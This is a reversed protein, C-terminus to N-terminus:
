EFLREIHPICVESDQLNMMAEEMEQIMEKTLHYKRNLHEYYDEIDQDHIERKRTLIAQMMDYSKDINVLNSEAETLKYGGIEGFLFNQKKIGEPMREASKKMLPYKEKLKQAWLTMRKYHARWIPLDKCWTEASLQMDQLFRVFQAITLTKAKVSYSDLKLARRFQRTMKYGNSSRFVQTSCFDTDELDGIKIFKAIQGLGHTIHKKAQEKTAFVEHLKEVILEIQSPECCTEGDDGKAIVEYNDKPIKALEEVVFRQYLAMRVTNGFTTDPDGSFTNGIIECIGITHRCGEEWYSGTLTSAQHNCMADWYVVPIHDIKDRIKRYIYSDIGQKLAAHQTNDFGSGDIQITATLGKQECKDLWKCLEPWNKGGCYGKLKKAAHQELAYIPPGKVYKIIGESASVCRTKPPDEGDYLQKEAKVIVNYNPPTTIWKQKQKMAKIIKEDTVSCDWIEGDDLKYLQKNFVTLYPKMEDQKEQNLHNMWTELSYQFNDLDMEDDIIKQAWKIFRELMKPDPIVTKITMRKMSTYMTNACNTYIIPKETGYYTPLIQIMGIKGHNESYCHNDEWKKSYRNNMNFGKKWTVKKEDEDMMGSKEMAKVLEASACSFPIVDFAIAAANKAAYKNQREVEEELWQAVYSIYKKAIQICAYIGLVLVSITTLPQEPQVAVVKNNPSAAVKAFLLFVIGLPKKIVKLLFYAYLLYTFTDIEGMSVQSSAGVLTVLRINTFPKIIKLLLAWIFSMYQGTVLLSLLKLATVAVMLTAISLYIKIVSRSINALLYCPKAMWPIRSLHELVDLHQRRILLGLIFLVQAAGARSATIFYININSTFPYQVAIMLITFLTFFYALLNPLKARTYLDERPIKKIRDLSQSEKSLVVAMISQYVKNTKNIAHQILTPIHDIHMNNSLLPQIINKITQLDISGPLNCIKVVTQNFEKLSCIIQVKEIDLTSLGSKSSLNTNLTVYALKTEICMYHVDRGETTVTLYTGPRELEQVMGVSVLETNIPKDSVTIKPRKEPIERIMIANYYIQNEKRYQTCTPNPCMDDHTHDEREIKHTHAYSYNCSTCIHYHAKADPIATRALRGRKPNQQQETNGKGYFYDCDVNPCQYPHQLHDIRTYEHDHYYPIACLKCYHLHTTEARIEEKKIPAVVKLNHETMDDLLQLDAITTADAQQIRVLVYASNTFQVRREVRYLLTDYVMIDKSYLAGLMDLHKYPVSNGNAAMVIHPEENITIRKWRAQDLLTGNEAQPNFVHLMAYHSRLYPRVGEVEQVHLQHKYTEHVGPYYYADTSILMATEDIHPCNHTPENVVEEMPQAQPQNLEGMPQAQPPNVRQVCNCVEPPNDREAEIKAFLGYFAQCRDMDAAGLQPRNFHIYPPPNEVDEFGPPAMSLTRRSAAIEYINRTLTTGEFNKLFAYTEVYKRVEALEPHQGTTTVDTYNMPIDTVIKGKYQERVTIGKKMLVKARSIWTNVSVAPQYAYESLEATATVSSNAKYQLPIRKHIAVQATNKTTVHNVVQDQFEQDFVETVENNGQRYTPIVQRKVVRDNNFFNQLKNQSDSYNNNKPINRNRV